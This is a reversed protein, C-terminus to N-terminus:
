QPSYHFAKYTMRMAKNKKRRKISKRIIAKRILYDVSYKGCGGTLFILSCLACLISQMDMESHLAFVTAAAGFSLFSVLMAPRGLLGLALLSGVAILAIGPAQPPIIASVDEPLAIHGTIGSVILTAAFLIRFLLMNTAYRGAKPMATGFFVNLMTTSKGRTRVRPIIRKRIYGAAADPNLAGLTLRGPDVSLVDYLKM